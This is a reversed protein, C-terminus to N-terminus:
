IHVTADHIPLFKRLFRCTSEFNRGDGQEARKVIGLTRRVQAERSDAVLRDKRDDIVRDSNPVDSPRKNEPARKCRAGTEKMKLTKVFLGPIDLRM